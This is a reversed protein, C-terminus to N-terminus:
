YKYIRLILSIVMLIVILLLYNNKIYDVMKTMINSKNETDFVFNYNYKLKSKLLIEDNDNYIDIYSVGFFSNFSMFITDLNDLNFLEINDEYFSKDEIIQGDIYVNGGNYFYIPSININTLLVNNIKVKNVNHEILASNDNLIGKLTLEMNRINFKIEFYDSRDGHLKIFNKDRFFYEIKKISGSISSSIEKTYFSTEKIGNNNEIAYYGKNQCGFSRIPGGKTFFEYYYLDDEVRKEIGNYHKNRRYEDYFHIMNIGKEEIEKEVDVSYNFNIYRRNGKHIFLSEDGGNYYDNEDNNKAYYILEGYNIGTDFEIIDINYKCENDDYINNGVLGKPNNEETGYSDYHWIYNGNDKYVCIKKNNDNPFNPDYISIYGVNNKEIYNYGVVTHASLIKIGEKEDNYLDLFSIIVLEKKEVITKIIKNLNINNIASHDKLVKYDGLSYISDEDQNIAKQSYQYIYSLEIIENTFYENKNVYNSLNEVISLPKVKNVNEYKNKYINIFAEPYEFFLKVLGSMGYCLGGFERESKKSFVINAFETGLVRKYFEVPIYHKGDEEINLKLGRLSNSFNWAAEQVDFAINKTKIEDKPVNYSINDPKIEKSIFYYNKIDRNNFLKNRQDLTKNILNLYENKIKINKLKGTMLEKKLDNCNGNILLSQHIYRFMKEATVIYGSRGFYNDYYNSRFYEENGKLIDSIGDEISKKEHNYDVNSDIKENKENIYAIVGYKSWGFNQLPLFAYIDSMNIVNFISAYKKEISNVKNDIDLNNYVTNPAGFTYAYINKTKKNIDDILRAALINAVAGGTNYGTVWYVTDKDDNLCERKYIELALGEFLEHNNVRYESKRDNKGIREINDFGADISKIAILKTKKKIAEEGENHTYEIENDGVVYKIEGNTDYKATKIEVDSEDNWKKLGIRRFLTTLNALDGNGSNENHELTNCLMLSMTSLEDYYNKNNMFFYRYDMHTNADEGFIGLTKGVRDNTTRMEGSVKNNLPEKDLKLMEYPNNVNVRGLENKGYENILKKLEVEGKGDPVGDFDTDKFIPNSEYNYLEVKLKSEKIKSKDEIINKGEYCNLYHESAEQRNEENPNKKKEKVEKRRNYINTKVKTMIREEEENSVGKAEKGYIESMVMKKIFGTVDVTIKTDGNKGLEDRDYLGDGDTDEYTDVKRGDKIEELGKKLRVRQLDVLLIENGEIGVTSNMINTGVNYHSFEEEIRENEVINKAMLYSRAINEEKFGNWVESLGSDKAMDVMAIKMNELAKSYSVESRIDYIEEAGFIGETNEISRKFISRVKNIRNYLEQLEVGRIEQYKCGTLEEYESEYDNNGIEIESEEEKNNKTVTSFSTSINFKDEYYIMYDYAGKIVDEVEGWEYYNEGNDRDRYIYEGKKSGEKVEINDLNKINVLFPWLDGESVKLEMKKKGQINRNRYRSEMLSFIMGKLGENYKEDKNEDFPFGMRELKKVANKAYVKAYFENELEKIGDDKDETFRKEWYVKFEEDEYKKSYFSSLIGEAQEKAEEKINVEEKVEDNEPEAENNNEDEGETEEKLYKEGNNSVYYMFGLMHKNYDFSYIGYGTSKIVGKYDVEEGTYRNIIKGDYEIEEENRTSPKLRENYHYKRWGVWYKESGIEEIEEKSIKQYEYGIEDRLGVEEESDNGEDEENNEDVDEINNESVIGENVGSYVERSTLLLLILLMISIKKIIHTFIKIMTKQTKSLLSLYYM